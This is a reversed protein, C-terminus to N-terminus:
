SSSRGRRRGFHAALLSEGALVVVLLWLIGPALETVAHLRAVLEEVPTQPGIWRWAGRGFADRFDGRSLRSLDGEEPTQNVAFRLRPLVEPVVDVFEYLGQQQTQDFSVVWSDERGARQRPTLRVKRGDPRKLLLHQTSVFVPQEFRDGVNLNADADPRGVLYRLLEQVLVPFEATAPLYSWDVGATANMLLVKGRGFAREVVAPAGNSLALVVRADPALELAMYRLFAADRNGSGTLQALAPHTSEGFCIYPLDGADGGRSGGAPGSVQPLLSELRCPLLGKGDKFLLKNYQYLNVRPGVFLWLAGGDAVYSELKAVMTETLATTDALVVAVYNGVNEYDIQAPHVVKTAFRSVREMGPHSPPAIARALYACERGVGGAGPNPKAGPANSAPAMEAGEDLILVDSSEPVTCLCIRRNDVRHEDGELVAEVLYEGPRTFRHEFVLPTPPDSLRAEQVGKKVGDVLFTVTALAGEPPEGWTQGLVRFRVPMGTSMLWEEPRLETLMYNFRPEGGVDVLFTEHRSSLENLVRATAAAQGGKRMWTHKQFDSFIYIEPRGAESSTARDRIWALGDAIPAAGSGPRLAELRAAATHLDTETETVTEARDSLLAVSVASGEPLERLMAAARKQALGFATTVGVQQNTSATADLLVVFHRQRAEGLLGHRILPRAIALVLLFIGLMRLLLLIRDQRRIRKQDKSRLLFRLTPLEIQRKRRRFLWEVILPLAVAVLGALMWPNAFFSQM